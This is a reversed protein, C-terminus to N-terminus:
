GNTNDGTLYASLKVLVDYSPKAKGSNIAVITNYHIGTKEAVKSMNRDELGKLIQELTLLM